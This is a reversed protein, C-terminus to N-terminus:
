RSVDIFRSSNWDVCIIVARSEMWIQLLMYSAVAVLDCTQCIRSRGDRPRYSVSGIWVTFHPVGVENGIWRQWLWPISARSHKAYV